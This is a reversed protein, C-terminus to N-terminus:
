WNITLRQTIPDVPVDRGEFAWDIVERYDEWTFTDLEEMTDEYRITVESMDENVTAVLREKFAGQIKIQLKRM